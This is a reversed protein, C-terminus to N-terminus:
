GHILNRYTLGCAVIEGGDLADMNPALLLAIAAEEGGAVEVREPHVGVQVTSLTLPLRGRWGIPVSDRDAAPLDDAEREDAGIVGVAGADVPLM